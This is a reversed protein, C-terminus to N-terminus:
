WGQSMQWGASGAMVVGKIESWPGKGSQQDAGSSRNEWCMTVWLRKGVDAGAFKKSWPSATDVESQWGPFDADIPAPADLPLVWLRIEAGHYSGKGRKTSGEIRFKVTVTHNQPDLFFDFAVHDTPDPKPSNNTDHLPLLM